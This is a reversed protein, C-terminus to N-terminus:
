WRVHSSGREGRGPRLVKDQIATVEWLRFFSIYHSFEQGASLGHSADNM